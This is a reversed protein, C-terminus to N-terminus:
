QIGGLAIRTTARANRFETVPLYRQKRRTAERAATEAVEAAGDGAKRIL